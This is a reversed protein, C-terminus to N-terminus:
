FAGGLVLGARESSVTPALFGAVRKPPLVFYLAVAGVLAAGGVIYGTFAVTRGLRVDDLKSSYASCSASQTSACVGPTAARMADADDRDGRAKLAFGAGVGIAVVGVGAVIAPVVLSRREEPPPTPPATFTGSPAPATTSPAPTPSPAPSVLSPPRLDVERTQGASANIQAEQKYSAITHAGPEVVWTDALPARGIVAGDVTVDAGDKALIRLQAVKATLEPLMERRAREAVDKDAKPHSLYARLHTYSDAYRKLEHEVVALNILVSHSQPSLALVQVYKVRAEGAKGAKTLAVGEKFRAKAEASMMEDEQAHGLPTALVAALMTAVVVMRRM